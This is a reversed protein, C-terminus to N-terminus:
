SVGISSTIKTFRVSFEDTTVFLVWPGRFCGCCRFYSYPCLEIRSMASFSDDYKKSASPFAEQDSRGIDMENSDPPLTCGSM